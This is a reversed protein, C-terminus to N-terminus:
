EWHSRLNQGKRLRTDGRRGRDGAKQPDPLRVPLKCLEARRPMQGDSLGHKFCGAEAM